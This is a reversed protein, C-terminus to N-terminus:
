EKKIRELEKIILAEAWKPCKRRGAEWDEITRTPIELLKSMAAQSLGAMMRADKITISKNMM